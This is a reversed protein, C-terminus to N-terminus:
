RPPRLGDLVVTLARRQKDTPSRDQDSTHALALLLDLVDDVEVDTRVVGSAQARTLLEAVAARFAAGAERMLAGVDIGLASMAHVLTRKRASQEVVHEFFEFLADGGDDVALGSARETLHGLRRVVVAELLAQKTPFHRFVTGVGIGAEAAVAETSVSPGEADLLAETAALIAARNRAADARM